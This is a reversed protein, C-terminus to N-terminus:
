SRPRHRISRNGRRIRANDRVVLVPCDAHRVVREATSGLLVHKLGTHGHTPLIILDADLSSALRTIEQFPVGNRVLTRVQLDGDLVEQRLRQLCEEALASEDQEVVQPPLAGVEPPPFRPEVVHALIIEADFQRAFAAAYPLASVSFESLDTAVVIRKLRVRALAKGRAGPKGAPVTLVPCPAHRVVREATSGLWVRKLGTQGRTAIVILDAGCKGALTAIEQFAKGQRVCASTEPGPRPGETALRNLQAEALRMTELEERALIVEELGSFRFPTEVVHTVMVSAAFREALWNALRVGTRASESFDTPALIRQIRIAPLKRAAKFLAAAASSEKWVNVEQMVKTVKKAPKIKM